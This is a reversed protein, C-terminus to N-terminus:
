RAPILAPAAAPTAGRVRAALSEGSLGFSARQVPQKEHQILTHPVGVRDVAVNGLRHDSMFEVVASGFGGALAHEELTIFTHHTQALSTLLAEDLPRVFRMNVITPKQAPDEILDYADLAVDCTNGLALIATGSGERLVEARGHAIPAPKELHNGQSNGRPYRIAVPANLTLAHELMPLLEDEIRPAMITMSPLTRLYAIDYLGMHTPGDDGAVGARDMCLVVPLNQIVIDHVIQDYARQMFTSYIAVVPKLGSTAAGAAFCVGHAEAIGVDFYRDPHKKAFRKLQTGDPMAATIAIVRRDRDALTTLADAFAESFTPRGSTKFEIKGNELEFPGVGHFTRKDLEAPEFGKGKITRVHLLVPGQIKRANSLVDVLTDYDHGDIPGVYHFGMEEFIVAAKPDALTMRMGAEEASLLAKRAAEGFPM